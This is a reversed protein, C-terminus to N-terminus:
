RGFDSDQERAPTEPESKGQEFPSITPGELLKSDIDIDLPWQGEGILGRQILEDIYDYPLALDQSHISPLNLDQPEVIESLPMNALEELNTIEISSDNNM